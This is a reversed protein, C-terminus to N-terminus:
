PQSSPAHCFSSFFLSVKGSNVAVTELFLFPVKRSNVALTERSIRGKDLLLKRTSANAAGTVKERNLDDRSCSFPHTRHTIPPLAPLLHTILNLHFLTVCVRVRASSGSLPISHKFLVKKLQKLTM